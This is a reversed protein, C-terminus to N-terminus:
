RAAVPSAHASSHRGDDSRTADASHLAGYLRQARSCADCHVAPIAHGQDFGEPFAPRANVTGVIGQATACSDNDVFLQLGQRDSEGMFRHAVLGNM